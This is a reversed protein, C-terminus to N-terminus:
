IYFHPIVCFIGRSISEFPHCLIPLKWKRNHLMQPPLYDTIHSFILYFSQVQSCSRLIGWVSPPKGLSNEELNSSDRQRVHVKFWNTKTCLLFPGREIDEWHKSLMLIQDIDEWYRAQGSQSTSWLERLTEGVDINEWNLNQLSSVSDNISLQYKISLLNFLYRTSISTSLFNLLSQSVMSFVNIKSLTREPGLLYLLVWRRIM